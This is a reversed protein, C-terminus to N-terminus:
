RQHSWVTFPTIPTFGLREYVPRPKEGALLASPLSPEATAAQWALAAGFEQQRFEPLTAVLTVGNLGGAVVTASTAVPHGDFRGLWFRLRPHSLVREDWADPASRLDPFPFARAVVDVFTSLTIADCVREITLGQPPPTQRAANVGRHMMVMHDHLKWGRADLGPVRWPSWLLFDDRPCAANSAAYFAEVEDLVRTRDTELVPRLLTASNFLSWSRGLDAAAFEPRRVARGGMALTPAERWTVLNELWRNLM